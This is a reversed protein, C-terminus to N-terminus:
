RGLVVLLRVVGVAVVAVAAEAVLIVEVVVVMIVVEAVAPLNVPQHTVVPIHVARPLVVRLVQEPPAGWWNHAAEEVQLPVLAVLVAVALPQPQEVVREVLM